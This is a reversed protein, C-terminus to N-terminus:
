KEGCSLYIKKMLELIDKVLPLLESDDNCNSSVKVLENKLDVAIELFNEMSENRVRVVVTKGMLVRRVYESLTQCVSGKWALYLKDYDEQSLLLAIPKELLARKKNRM